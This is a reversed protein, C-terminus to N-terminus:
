TTITVDPVIILNGSAVTYIRGQADKVQADWVLMVKTPPEGSTDAPDITVQCLGNPANTITIGGGTTSKQFVASIDPDSFHNKATFWITSGTLDYFSGGSTVAMNLKVTDGRYITIDM